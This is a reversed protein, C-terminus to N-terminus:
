HFVFVHLVHALLKDPEAVHHFLVTEYVILHAHPFLLYQVTLQSGLCRQCCGLQCQVNRLRSLKGRGARLGSRLRIVARMMPPLTLAVADIIASVVENRSRNRGVWGGGPSIAKGAGAALTRAGATASSLKLPGPQFSDRLAQVSGGVVKCPCAGPCGQSSKKESRANPSADRMRRRQFVATSVVM